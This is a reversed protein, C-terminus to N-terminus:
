TANDEKWLMDRLGSYRINRKKVADGFVTEGAIIEVRRRARTVGTYLLERSLVPGAKDPLVILVNDFESGQSKHVTLAFVTEHDPLRLPHLKRINGESENFFIRIEGDSEGDDAAVGIDGNFLRLRYDNRTIMVPKGAYWRTNPRYPNSNPIMREATQNLRHVGFPGEKVACLVRFRDLAAFRDEVSQAEFYAKYGEELLSKFLKAPSKPPPKLVAEKRGSDKLVALADEPLGDRVARSLEGIGGGEAFRRSKELRVVCDAIGPRSEPDTYASIDDGTIQFFDAAFEPSVGHPRGTDCIDGFVAGAEVSSLQDMDGLLILRTEPRLSQVLKSMLAMDIMSSEDVIMVDANVPNDANHRFYPTGIIPKLVRHITAAEEPVTDTISKSCLRGFKKKSESIAEAMRSAAKGTPAAMVIRLPGGTSCEQLLALIKFVTTTKGTGPGGSIVCLRKRLATYAAWKQHDIQQSPGEPPFLRALGQQFLDLDLDDPDDGAREILSRGLKDQYEWYRYLYLRKDNDMILPTKEGPAGGIGATLLHEALHEFEPTQVSALDSAFPSQDLHNFDVCVHGIQQHGSVLAAALMASARNTKATEAMMRGFHLDLYSFHEGGRVAKEIDSYDPPSQM